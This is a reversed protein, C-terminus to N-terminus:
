SWVGRGTCLEFGLACAAGNNGKVIDRFTSTSGYISSSDVVSGAVAAQAASLPTSLSTGGLVFWGRRGFTKTSDYVAVGSTPDADIALDPTARRGACTPTPYGSFTLQPSSAAEYRSCGGGGNVWGSEVAGTEGPLPLRTGGVSVVDPSVSPYLAGIGDDGAAAFFSTGPQVFHVDYSAESAFEGVDWSMSVYDAHAKAYDVAKMLDRLSATKAEVLLLHAGPAIAHAWEVDLSAELAWSRSIRPYRKRGRQNVKRFCGSAVTCPPLDIAPSASFAALDKAISPADFAVVLAITHGAGATEDSTFGYASKIQSPWFGAPGTTTMPTGDADTVVASQCRAAHRASSCVARHSRRVRADATGASGLSVAVMTALVSVAACALVKRRVPIGM